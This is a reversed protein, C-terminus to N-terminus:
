LSHKSSYMTGFMMFIFQYQAHLYVWEAMGHVSAIILMGLFSYWVIPSNMNGLPTKLFRRIRSIIYYVWGLFGILGLEVFIILHINHIPQNNFFDSGYSPLRFLSYTVSNIGCGWAKNENIIDYAMLYHILRYDQMEDSNSNFFMDQVIGLSFFLLCLVSICFSSILVKRLSLLHLKQQKFLFLIVITFLSGLIAGRSESLVLVFFSLSFLLWSNKRNYNCLVCAWYFICIFACLAGLRNHQMTTGAAMRFQTGERLSAFVNDADDYFIKQLWDIDLVVYTFSIVFEVIIIIKFADYSARLFTEVTFCKRCVYVAILIQSMMMLAITVAEKYFNIPTLYSYTFAIVFYLFGYKISSFRWFNMEKRLLLIVLAVITTYLIGMSTEYSTNFDLWGKEREPIKVQFLIIPLVMMSQIMSSLLHFSLNKNSFDKSWYFRLLALFFILICIFRIM